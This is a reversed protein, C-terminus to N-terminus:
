RAALGLANALARLLRPWSAVGGEGNGTRLAAFALALLGCALLPIVRACLIRRM